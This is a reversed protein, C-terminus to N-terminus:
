SFPQNEVLKVDVNEPEEGPFFRDFLERGKKTFEELRYGRLQVTKAGTDLNLDGQAVRIPDAHIDYVSLLEALDRQDMPERGHHYRNWGSGVQRNLDSVLQISSLQDAGWTHFINRIDRLVRTQNSERRKTSQTGAAKYTKDLCDEGAVTAVKLLPRWNNRMRNILSRTDPKADRIAERNDKAWRACKRRLETLEVVLEPREELDFDERAQNAMKRLLRIHLSRNGLTTNPRGIMGYSMPSYTDYERAIIQDDFKECRHIHGGKKHGSNFMGKLQDNDKLFTDLEDILLTPHYLHVLRFASAVSINDSQLPRAVLESLIDMDTSKGCDTDPSTIGLRPFISFVDYNHSALAWLTQMHADDDYQFVIFRNFFATIANILEAGNVAEPWPEIEEFSVAKGGPPEETQQEGKDLYPRVEQDLDAASVHLAKALPKRRPAYEVHTMCCDRMIDVAEAFPPPSAPNTDAVWTDLQALLTDHREDPDVLKLPKRMGAKLQGEIHRLETWGTKQIADTIKASINAFNLVPHSQEGLAGLVRGLHWCKQVLFVYRGSDLKAADAVAKHFYKLANELTTEGKAEESVADFGVWKLLRDVSEQATSINHTRQYVNGTITVFHNSGGGYLEVSAGMKSGPLPHNTINKPLKAAVIVRLGSGSPTVEVYTDSLWVKIYDGVAPDINGSADLCDDFDIFVLGDESKPNFGLRYKEGLRRIGACAKYFTTAKDPWGKDVGTVPDCPQKKNDKFSWGVWHALSLVKYPVVGMMSRLVALILPKAQAITLGQEAIFDEVGYEGGTQVRQAFSLLFREQQEDTTTGDEEEDDLTEELWDALAANNEFHLATPGLAREEAADAVTQAQKIGDDIVSPKPEETAPESATTDTEAAPTEVKTKKVKKAKPESARNEQWLAEWAEVTELAPPNELKTIQQLDAAAPNCKTRFAKFAETETATLKRV